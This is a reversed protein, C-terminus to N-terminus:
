WLKTKPTWKKSDDDVASRKQQDAIIQSVNEHSIISRTMFRQGSAGKSWTLAAHIIQGCQFSILNLYEVKINYKLWGITHLFKSIHKRAQFAYLNIYKEEQNALRNPTSLFNRVMGIIVSIAEESMIRMANGDTSEVPKWEGGEKILGRWSQVLEDLMQEYELYFERTNLGQGQMMPYLGSNMMQQQQLQQDAAAQQAYAADEQEPTM